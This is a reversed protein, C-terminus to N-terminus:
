EKLYGLARLQDRVIEEDVPDIDANDVTTETHYLVETVVFTIYEEATEFETYQLRNEVGSVVDAPFHLERTEQDSMNPKNVRNNTMQVTM